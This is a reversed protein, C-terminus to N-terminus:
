MNQHLNHMVKTPSFWRMFM